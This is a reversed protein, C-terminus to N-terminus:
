SGMTPKGTTTSVGLAVGFVGETSLWQHSMAKAFSAGKWRLADPFISSDGFFVYALFVTAVITLPPGLARRTAELLTILGIGAIWLDAEIPAGPRASLSEYFLFLYAASFSGALAFIWDLPPVHDRPSRKLAPFAMFALFVSFALHISRTESSNLVPVVNAVMFPLPSSIWLQFLSWAVATGTLLRGINGRPKRAGTDVSAVIDDAAARETQNM